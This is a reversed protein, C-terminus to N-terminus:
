RPLMSALMPNKSIADLMEALQKAFAHIESVQAAVERFEGISVPRDDCERQHDALDGDKRCIIDMGCYTCEVYVETAM